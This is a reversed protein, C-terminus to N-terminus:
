NTEKTNEDQKKDIVKEEQIIQNSFITKLIYIVIIIVFYLLVFPKLLYLIIFGLIHSKFIMRGQINKYQTEEDEINNADGKTIFRDDNQEIIRHTIFTDDEYFTVIDGIKYDHEKSIIIMDGPNITPEMSGTRVVLISKGFLSIIKEKKIFRSYSIIIFIIVAMIIFTNVLINYIKEKM